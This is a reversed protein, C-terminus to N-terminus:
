TRLFDFEAAFNRNKKRLALFIRLKEAKEKGKAFFCKDKHCFKRRLWEKV